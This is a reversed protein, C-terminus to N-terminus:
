LATRLAWPSSVDQVLPQWLFLEASPGTGASHGLGLDSLAQQCWLVAVWSVPGREPAAAGFCLQSGQGDADIEPQAQSAPFLLLAM